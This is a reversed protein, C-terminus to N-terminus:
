DQNSKFISIFNLFKSRDSQSQGNGDATARLLVPSSTISESRNSNNNPDILPSNKSDIVEKVLRDSQVDAMSRLRRRNVLLNILKSWDNSQNQESKKAYRLLEGLIKYRLEGILRNRTSQQDLFDFMQEVYDDADRNEKMQTLLRDRLEIEDRNSSDDLMSQIKQELELRDSRRQKKDALRTRRAESANRIQQVKRARYEAAKVLLRQMGNLKPKSAEGDNSKSEDDDTSSATGIMEPEDDEDTDSSEDLEDISELDMGIATRGERHDSSPRRVDAEMWKEVSKRTDKAIVTSQKTPAADSENRKVKVILDILQRLKSDDLEIMNSREKPRRKQKFTERLQNVLDTMLRRNKEKKSRVREYMNRGIQKFNDKFEETRNTWEGVVEDYDKTSNERLIESLTERLKAKQDDREKQKQKIKTDVLKKLMGNFDDSRSRKKLSGKGKNKEKDDQDDEDDQDDDDDHKQAHRTKSGIREILGILEPTKTFMPSLDLTQNQHRIQNILNTLRKVKRETYPLLNYDSQNAKRDIIPQRCQQKWDNSLLHNFKKILAISDCDSTISQDMVRCNPNPVQHEEQGEFFKIRISGDAFQEFLLASGTRDTNLETANLIISVAKLETGHVLYIVGKAIM